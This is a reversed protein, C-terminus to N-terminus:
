PAPPLVRTMLDREHAVFGAREYVARAHQNSREVELRLAKVGRARAVTEALALARGGLGRGRAEPRLFLEDVILTRGHFELCFSCLLVVYGLARGHPEEFLWVEGLAPEALLELLAARAGVEDFLLHDFAYYERMLSLTLTADAVEARRVRASSAAEAEAHTM